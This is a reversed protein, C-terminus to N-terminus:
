RLLKLTLLYHPYYWESENPYPLLAFTNLLELTHPSEPLRHDKDALVGKLVSIYGTHIGHELTRRTSDIVEDLMKDTARPADEDFAALAVNRVLNVFARARGGSAMALKKVQEATLLGPTLDAVRHEFLKQFVQLGPGPDPPSHGDLVPENVLIKVNWGEIAGSRDSRLIYPATVVVPAILKLLLQSDGFLEIARQRDRIRDLGDIIFLVRRHNKQVEAILQNIAGLLSQVEPAQDGITRAQGMPIKWDKVGDLLAATVAVGGTAAIAATTTIPALLLPAMTLLGKTFAAVDLAPAPTVSTATALKKWATGAADLLRQEFTMGLQSQARAVLCMAALFCVEWSSVKQLAAKDGLAEFYGEIDFFVVLDDAARAEAIRYLETTKGTGVTGHLLIRPTGMGPPRKLMQIIQNAPSGTREIRWGPLTPKAPDFRAVVQQWVEANNM